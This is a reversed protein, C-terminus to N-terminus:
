LGLRELRAHYDDTIEEIDRTEDEWMRYLHARTEEDLADWRRRLEEARLTWYGVTSYSGNPLGRQHRLNKRVARMVGTEGAFWLYGPEEPLELDRIVADLRSPTHGNGAYLWEVTLEEADREPDGLSIPQRHRPDVVELVVRTRVGPPTQAVLRAAAPLGAADAVLIQWRAEAPRKYLGTPSTMGVADGPAAALAWAAAIGGDHVVFDIDVTGAEPDVGRITYTRMPAPRQEEDWSWGGREAPTPLEPERTGEAPFFLRVYEDGVGTTPYGALDPGGLTIRVMGPTLRRTATVLARHITLTM